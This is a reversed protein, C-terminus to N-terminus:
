QGMVHVDFRVVQVNKRMTTKAGSTAKPRRVSRWWVGVGGAGVGVGVGPLGSKCPSAHPRPEVEDAVAVESGTGVRPGSSGVGRSPPAM